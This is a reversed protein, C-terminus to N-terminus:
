FKIIWSGWAEEEWPRTRKALPSEVGEAVLDFSKDPTM